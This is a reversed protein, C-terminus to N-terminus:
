TAQWSETQKQLYWTAEPKQASAPRVPNPDHRSFGSDAPKGSFRQEIWTLYIQLGAFMAPAHSVDPLLHYQISALPNANVLQNVADTVTQPLVTPDSAGTIVLMAGSIPRAGIEATKQYAQVWANDQWGEKLIDTSPLNFLVTNCGKLAIYTDLSQQGEPTFIQGPSFDPYNSILSPAIMLLLLPIVSANSLDLFRTVPSLSVTGLHGEMPESVLREALAWTALGGQSSGVTVFRKSLEPFTKQAAHVSYRIDNAQAPGNLYEYVIPRGSADAGVGLGAYDTAVVVYGLLALQYPAQFHHWLNQMNSPACEDNVGSTGHAWAVVPLGDGYDRALYPWLVYATVPVLGGNSTQSQYMFRSLSLNPPLTYLSVDSEREVKLLTGPAANATEPPVLYFPDEAVSPHARYSLEFEHAALAANASSAM